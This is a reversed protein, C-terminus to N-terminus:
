IIIFLLKFLLYDHWCSATFCIRWVWEIHREKADRYFFIGALILLSIPLFLFFLLFAIPKNKADSSCCFFQFFEAGGKFMYVPLLVVFILASYIVCFIFWVLAFLFM